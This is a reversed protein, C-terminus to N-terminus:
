EVRPILVLEVAGMWSDINFCHRTKQAVFIQLQLTM